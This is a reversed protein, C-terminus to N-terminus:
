RAARGNDKTAKRSPVNLLFSSAATPGYDSGWNVAIRHEGPTLRESPISLALPSSPHEQTLVRAEDVYVSLRGPQANFHAAAPGAIKLQLKVAGTAMYARAEADWEASPTVDLSPSRDEFANLGAHHVAPTERKRAVLAAAPHHRRAYELFSQGRNGRTIISNDPLSTALVSVSFHQLDSVRITGSEDFGNWKEVVAGAVRPERNVITKLIPGENRGTKPNLTAQGAEIHV